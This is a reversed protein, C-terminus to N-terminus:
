FERFFQNRIHQCETIRMDFQHRDGFVREIRRPAILHGTIVRRGRAVARRFRKAAKDIGAVLVIQAHNEVPHRRMKRLIIKRECAEGALRNVFVFIWAAAFMLVPARQNEIVAAVLHTIKQDGVRQVPQFFKM